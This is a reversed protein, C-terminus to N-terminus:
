RDLNGTCDFVVALLVKAVTVIVTEASAGLVVLLILVILCV